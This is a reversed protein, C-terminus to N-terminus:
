AVVADSSSQDHLPDDTRHTNSCRQHGGDTYNNSTYKMSNSLVNLGLCFQRCKVASM